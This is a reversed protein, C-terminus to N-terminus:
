SSYMENEGDRGQKVGVLPPVRQSILM